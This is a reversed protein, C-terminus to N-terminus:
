GEIIIRGQGHPDAYEEGIEGGLIDAIYIDLVGVDLIGDDRQIPDDMFMNLGDGGSKLIYSNSAVTYTGAPDIPVGGVKVNYVRRKGVVRMFNGQEDLIVSSPVSVDVDFTLGSVQLFGGFEDPLLHVSMELADLIDQGTTRVMCATNGFPHVAMVQEYTVDGVEIDARIGGGNVLGIDAGFVVRYADACLDGLNTEQSRVVLVPAGSESDTATLRVRSYAMVDSEANEFVKGVIWQQTIPEAFEILVVYQNEEERDSAVAISVEDSIPITLSCSESRSMVEQLPALLEGVVLGMKPSHAVLFGEVALPAEMYDQADGFFIAIRDIGTGNDSYFIYGMGTNQNYFSYRTSTEEIRTPVIRLSNYSESPMTDDGAAIEDIYMSHLTLFATVEAECPFVGEGHAFSLSAVCISILLIIAISRKMRM